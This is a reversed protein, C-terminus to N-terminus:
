RTVPYDRYRGFYTRTVGQVSWFGRVPRFVAAQDLVGGSYTGPLPVDGGAGHYFSAGGLVLWKGQRFVAPRDRVTPTGEWVYRGPVPIDSPLGHFWRTLGRVLWAGTGPRWVAIEDAGDGDYDAPVPIDLDQGFWVQTIGRVTWLGSTLHFGAADATGDGNYDAPVPVSRWDLYFRTLGKVAWLGNDSRFIGIDTVGDGDYDGPVPLDRIKGYWSVGLDKVLWKGERARFVAIDSSGDGNYDGSCLVPLVYPSPTGSFEPTRTASPTLAASPTPIPTARAYNAYLYGAAMWDDFFDVIFLSNGPGLGSVDKLSVTVQFNQGDYGFGQSPSVDLWDTSSTWWNYVNEPRYGGSWLFEYTVVAAPSSDKLTISWPIVQPACYCEPVPTPTFYGVPTPTASPTPSPTQYGIVSPTPTPSPALAAQALLTLEADYYTSGDEAVYFQAFGTLAPMYVRKQIGGDFTVLLNEGTQTSHGAHAFARLMVAGFGTEKPYFRNASDFVHGWSGVEDNVDRLQFILDYLGGGHPCVVEVNEIGTQCLWATQGTSSPTFVSALAFMTVISLWCSMKM